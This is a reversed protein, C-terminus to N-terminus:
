VLDEPIDFRTHSKSHMLALQWGQMGYRNKGLKLWSKVPGTPYTQDALARDRDQADEYLLFVGAADEEIAGSGRLDSVDLEGRHEKSNARSTQSVILVPVNLDVAVQKMARSIATFKEYDGRVGKGSSAMLQMHDVAVLDVRNNKKLRNTEQIVYDPTVSSKTSVMVPYSLLEATSRSLPKSLRDCVTRAEDIVDKTQNHMKLKFQADRLENLDVRAEIAAMRQYVSRSGMEMSFLLPTNRNRMAAVIFQLALSTKGSGQNAGIVYVEGCRMGGGLARNLKKWPTPMGVLKSLNWFEEVGGASEIEQAFSRVYKDNENPVLDSYDWEPTWPQARKYLERLQELNGGAVMWDTVDGKLPLGPLEIIKVITAVSALLEAVKRAHDRGPEDNDPFIAVKKGVFWKALDAKFNGAGGSNCTAAMGLAELTHVDKEGEAIGIFEGTILRPLRYPARVVGGLGWAWGGQGDPRRQRFQKGNLRIVQYLLKGVEDTYDYAAEFNREEWPIDPRGVIQFVRAKATPFDAGTLEQEISIMDWGRGCVSHCQALGTEASVGFNADKGHHIPCPGRFEKAGTIKLAPVRTAYYAEVEARNFTM